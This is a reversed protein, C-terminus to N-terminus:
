QLSRKVVGDFIKTFSGVLRFGDFCLMSRENQCFFLTLMSVIAKQPNRWQMCLRSTSQLKVLIDRDEKNNEFLLHWAGTLGVFLWNAIVKCLKQALPHFKREGIWTSLDTVRWWDILLSLKMLMALLLDCFSTSTVSLLYTINNTTPLGQMMPDLKAIRVQWQQRTGDDGVVWLEGKTQSVCSPRWSLRWALLVFEKDDLDHFYPLLPFSLPVLQQWRPLLEHPQRQQM